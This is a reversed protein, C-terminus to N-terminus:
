IVEKSKEIDYLSRAINRLMTLDYSTFEDYVLKKQGRVEMNTVISLLVAESKYLTAKEEDSLYFEAM